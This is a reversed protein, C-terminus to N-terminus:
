NGTASGDVTSVDVTVDRDAAFSLVATLSVRDGEAAFYSTPDFQVTLVTSHLEIFRRVQRISQSPLVPSYETQPHCYQGSRLTPCYGPQINGQIAWGLLFANNHSTHM